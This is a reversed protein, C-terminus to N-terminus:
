KKTEFKEEDIDEIQEQDVNEIDSFDQSNEKNTCGNFVLLMFFCILLKLCSRRM